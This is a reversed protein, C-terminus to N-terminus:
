FVYKYVNLYCVPLFQCSKLTFINKSCITIEICIKAYSIVHYSINIRM